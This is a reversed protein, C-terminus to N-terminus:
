NRSKTGFHMTKAIYQEGSGSNIKQGQGSNVSQNGTGGSAINQTSNTMSGEFDSDPVSSEVKSLQDIAEKLQAMQNQTATKFLRHTALADLDRLIGQMLTEVRHAKGLRLLFTRYFDLVSGDKTNKVWKEVKEFIDQLKKTKEECSSVVPLLARKSSEDLIQGQLQDRALGLTDEALPLNRNVENFESPLGRLLQIAQYTGSIAQVVAITSTIIGLPDM